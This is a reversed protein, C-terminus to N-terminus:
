YLNNNDNDIGNLYQKKIRDIKEEYEVSKKGYYRPPIPWNLDNKHMYGHGNKNKKRSKLENMRLIKWEKRPENNASKMLEFKSIKAKDRLIGNEDFVSLINDATLWEKEEERVRMKQGM